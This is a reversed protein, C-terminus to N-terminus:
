LKRLVEEIIHEKDGPVLVLYTDSKRPATEGSAPLIRTPVGEDEFLNRWKEAEKLGEIKKIEVWM